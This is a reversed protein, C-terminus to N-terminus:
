PPQHAWVHQSAARGCAARSGQCSSPAPAPLVSVTGRETRLEAVVRCAALGDRHLEEQGQLQHEADEGGGVLAPAVVQAGRGQGDAEGHGQAVEEPHTMTEAESDVCVKGWLFLGLSWRLCLCLIEGLPLCLGWLSLYLSGRLVLCVGSPRVALYGLM